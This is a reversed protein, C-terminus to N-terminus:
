RTRSTHEEEMRPLKDVAPGNEDFKTGRNVGGAMTMGTSASHIIGPLSGEGHHMTGKVQRSKIETHHEM